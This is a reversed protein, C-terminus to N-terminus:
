RTLEEDQVQAVEKILEQTAPKKSLPSNVGYDDGFSVALRPNIEKMKDLNAKIATANAKREASDMKVAKMQEHFLSMQDPMWLECLNIFIADYSDEAMSQAVQENLSEVQHRLADAEKQSANVEKRMESAKLKYLEEAAFIAVDATAIKKRQEEIIHTMTEHVEKWKFVSFIGTPADPIDELQTAWKKEVMKTALREAMKKAMPKSAEKVEADFNAIRDDLATSKAHLAATAVDFADNIEVLRANYSSDLENHKASLVLRNHKIESALSAKRAELLDFSAKITQAHVKAKQHEQRTARTRGPGIRLLGCELGVKKFYDDQFAVMGAKYSEKRAKATTGEEALYGDHLYKANVEVDGIIYAHIHPYEEDLHLVAGQLKDGYKEKLYKLNADQWKKLGDPDDHTPFSAVFTLLVQADKRTKDKKYTRAVEDFKAIRADILAPLARISEKSGVLYTPELPHEVHLCADPERTAEDIVDQLNFVKGGKSSEAKKASATRSYGQIHAFQFSM